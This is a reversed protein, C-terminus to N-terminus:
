QVSRIIILFYQRVQKNMSATKSSSGNIIWRWSQVLLVGDRQTTPGLLHVSTPPSISLSPHHIHNIAPTTSPCLHSDTQKPLTPSVALLPVATMEYTVVNTPPWRMSFVFVRSFILCPPNLTPSVSYFTGTEWLSFVSDIWSGNSQHVQSSSLTEPCPHM